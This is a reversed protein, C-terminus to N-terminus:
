IGKILENAMTYELSLTKTADIKDFYVCLRKDDVFTITGRGYRKHIIENGTKLLIRDVLMEKVFRSTECKKGYMKEPVYVYLGYKARTLAVYFLRREEEIGDTDFCKKHPTCGEVCNLIFVHSFELGKAGHMTSLTVMDKGTYGKRNKEALQSTYTDIYSFWDDFSEFDRASEQIEELVDMYDQASVGRYKAYSDVYADLGVAKRIYNVAGYPGLRAIRRLDNELVNINNVVRYNDKYYERISEFNVREGDLADRSVYRNPKNIIRLLISRDFAGRSLRIYDFICEGLFHTFVNPISDKMTFPIGNEMLKTALGRPETNTRYIIAMESFLVGAKSLQRIRDILHSNEKAVTDVKVVHVRQAEGPNFASVLAKDYRDVNNRIVRKSCEVIDYSCRYNVNLYEIATNPYDEPFQKMISPMAGRFGYVSQDDDGVAFVNQTDAALMKVILYQIRNIDQFEDILIYKFREQWLRLIDPRKDLLEYTFVLMDDFDLKQHKRLYNEYEDYVIKFDGSRMSTSEYSGIDLMESKVNGIESVVNRAFDEQADYKFGHRDISNRIASYKEAETVINDPTYNYANRLMWFFVSHFTGFTVGRRQGCLKEYRSKMENAAAKTFTIVLINDPSIGMVETMNMIRHTLVTTKGSGPGALLLMPGYTHKIANLQAKNFEMYIDGETIYAYYFSPM